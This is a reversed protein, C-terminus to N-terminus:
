PCQQNHSYKRSNITWISDKQSGFPIVSRAIPGNGRGELGVLPGQLVEVLVPDEVRQDAEEGPGVLVDGSRLVGDAGEVGNHEDRGVLSIGGEREDSFRKVKHVASGVEVKRKEVDMTNHYARVVGVEMERIEVGIVVVGADCDEGFAGGLGVGDFGFSEEANTKFCRYISPLHIGRNSNIIAVQKISMNIITISHADSIRMNLRFNSYFSVSGDRDNTTLGAMEIVSKVGEVEKREEGQSIGKLHIEVGVSEEVVGEVGGIGHLEEEDIGHGVGEIIFVVVEGAVIAIGGGRISRIKKGKEWVHAVFSDSGVNNAINHILSARTGTWWSFSRKILSQSTCITRGVKSRWIAFFTNRTWRACVDAIPSVIACLTWCSFEVRGEVGRAGGALSSGGVL